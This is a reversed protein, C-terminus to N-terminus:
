DLEIYARVSEIRHKIWPYPITHVVDGRKTQAGYALAHDTCAQRGSKLIASCRTRGDRLLTRCALPHTTPMQPPPPPPTPRRLRRAWRGCLLYICSPQVESDRWGGGGVGCLPGFRVCVPWEKSPMRNPYSEGPSLPGESRSNGGAWEGAAEYAEAKDKM